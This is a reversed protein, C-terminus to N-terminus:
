LFVFCRRCISGLCFDLFKTISAEDKKLYAEFVANALKDDIETKTYHTNDIETKTYHSNDIETKTYYESLDINKLKDDVETKTYHNNDIETKTYYESLDINDLKDDVETKTYYNDLSAVVEGVYGDLEEVETTITEFQTTVNSEHATFASNSVYNNSVNTQVEAIEARLTSETNALDDYSVGGGTTIINDIRNELKTVEGELETKTVYDSELDTRLNDVSAVVEGVSVKTAYTDVINNDDGDNTAKNASSANGNLSGEFTTATLKTFTAVTGELKGTLKGGVLNLYNNKVYQELTDINTQLTTDASAVDTKTAYVNAVEKKYDSLTKVCNTEIVNVDTKTAYTDVITNGNSDQVAKDAVGKLNGEFATAIVNGDLVVNGNKDLLNISYDPYENGLNETASYAVFMGNPRAVLAYVGGDTDYKLFSTSEGSKATNAVVSEGLLDAWTKAGLDTIVKKLYLTKTSPNVSLNNTANLVTEVGDKLESNSSFVIPYIVDSSDIHQVVQKAKQRGIVNYNTGDFVM